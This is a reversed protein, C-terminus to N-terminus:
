EITNALYRRVPKGRNGRTDLDPTQELRQFIQAAPATTTKVPCATATMTKNHQLWLLLALQQKGM